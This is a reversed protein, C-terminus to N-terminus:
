SIYVQLSDNFAICEDLVDCLIMVFREHDKSDTQIADCMETFDPVGIKNLLKYDRVSWHGTNM